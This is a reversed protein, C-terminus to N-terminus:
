NVFCFNYGLSDSMAVAAVCSGVGAVKPAAGEAGSIVMTVVARPVDACLEVVVLGGFITRGRTGRVCVPRLRILPGNLGVFANNMVDTAPLGLVRQVFVAELNDAPARDPLVEKVVLIYLRLIVGLDLLKELVLLAAM